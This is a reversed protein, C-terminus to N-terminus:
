GGTINRRTDVGNDTRVRLRSKRRSNRASSTTNPPSQNTMTGNSTSSLVSVPVRAEEAADREGRVGADQRQQQRVGARDGVPKSRRRIMIADFQPPARRPAARRSTRDGAVASARGPRPRPQDRHRLREVRRGGVAASGFRTRGSSRDAAFAMAPLAQPVIATTPEDSPPTSLAANRGYAQKAM